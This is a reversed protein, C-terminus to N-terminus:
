KAAFQVQKLQISNQRLILNGMMHCISISHIDELDSQMLLNIKMCFLHSDKESRFDYGHECVLARMRVHIDETMVVNGNVQVRRSDRHTYTSNQQRIVRM